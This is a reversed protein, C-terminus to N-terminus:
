RDIISPSTKRSKKSSALLMSLFRPSLSSRRYCCFKKPYMFTCSFYAVVVYAPCCCFGLFLQCVVLLFLHIASLFLTARQLIILSSPSASSFLSPLLFFSNKHRHPSSAFLPILPQTHFDEPNPTLRKPNFQHHRPQAPFPFPFPFPGTHLLWCLLLSLFLPFLLFFPFFPFSFHIYIDGSNPFLIFHQEVPFNSGKTVGAGVGCLRRFFIARCGRRAATQVSLSGLYPPRTQNLSTRPPRSIWAEWDGLEGANPGSCHWDTTATM